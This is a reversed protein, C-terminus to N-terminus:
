VNDPVEVEIWGNNDRVNFTRLGMKERPADPAVFPPELMKGTNLDFVAHHCRCKVTMREPDFETLICRAHSCTADIGKLGEKTKAIFVVFKGVNVQAHGAKELARSSITRVWPM